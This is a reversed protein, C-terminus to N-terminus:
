RSAEVIATPNADCADLYAIIFAVLGDYSGWGNAPNYASYKSENLALDVLANRLPVRLEDAIRVEVEAPRWLHKYVGAAGAMKGLNHTINSGYLETGTRADILSVDLSM